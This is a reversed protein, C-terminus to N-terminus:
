VRWNVRFLWNNVFAHKNNQHTNQRELRKVKPLPKKNMPKAEEIALCRWHKFAFIDNVQQCYIYRSSYFLLDFKTSDLPLIRFAKLITEFEWTNISTLCQLFTPSVKRTTYIELTHACINNEFKSEVKM